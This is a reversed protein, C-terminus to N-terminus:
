GSEAHRQRRGEGADGGSIGVDNEGVAAAAAGGVDADVSAARSREELVAAEAVGAAAHACHGEQRRAPGHEAPARLRHAALHAQLVGAQGGVAPGGARHALDDVEGDDARGTRDLRDVDKSLSIFVASRCSRPKESISAITAETIMSMPRSPRAPRCIMPTRALLMPLRIDCAESSPWSRAWFM